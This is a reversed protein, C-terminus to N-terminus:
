RMGIRGEKAAKGTGAWDHGRPEQDGKSGIAISKFIGLFGLLEEPDSGDFFLATLALDDMHAVAARFKPTLGKVFVRTMGESLFAPGFLEIVLLSLAFFAVVRGHTGQAKFEDADIEATPFVALGIVSCEIFFCQVGM